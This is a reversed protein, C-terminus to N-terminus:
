RKGRSPTGGHTDSIRVSEGKIKQARLGGGTGSIREIIVTGAAEIEGVDIGWAALHEQSEHKLVEHVAQTQKLIAEDEAIAPKKELETRVAKRFSSDKPDSDLLTTSVFKYGTALMNKLSDYADIVAKRAVGSAGATAGAILATEIATLPDM